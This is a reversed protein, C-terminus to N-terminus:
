SFILCSLLFVLSAEGDVVEDGGFTEDCGEDVDGKGAGGGGGSTGGETADGLGEAGGPMLSSEEKMSM